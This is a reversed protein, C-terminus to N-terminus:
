FQFSIFSIQNKNLIVKVFSFSLVFVCMCNHNYLKLKWLLDVVLKCKFLNKNISILTILVKSIYVTFKETKDKKKWFFFFWTINYLHSPFISLEIKQTQIGSYINEGTKELMTLHVFFCHDDLHTNIQRSTM